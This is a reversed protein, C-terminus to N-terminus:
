SDERLSLEYSVLTDIMRVVLSWELQERKQEATIRNRFSRYRPTNSLIGDYDTYRSSYDNGYKLEYNMMEIIVSYTDEMMNYFKSAILTVNTNGKIVRMDGNFIEVDGLFRHLLTMVLGDKKTHEIM